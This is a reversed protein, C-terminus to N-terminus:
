LFYKICWFDFALESDLVYKYPIYFYGNDGVLNGWSNQLIFIQKNDDYGCLELAHGGLYEETETNPIQINGTTMTEKNEFSDYIMIGFIVPFGNFLCIKIYKLNRPVSIYNFKNHKKANEYIHDQPKQNYKEVLYPYEIEDCVYYKSVAKCTGRLTAGIDDDLDTSELIRTNAYIFLRSPTFIPVEEKILCTKLAVCMANATCSSLSGQNLVENNVINRLDIKDPLNKFDYDIYDRFKYDREDIPQRKLGFKHIDSNDLM